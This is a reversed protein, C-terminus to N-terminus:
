ARRRRLILGGLTLLALTTPEPVVEGRFGLNIENSNFETDPSMPVRFSLTTGTLIINSIDDPSSIAVISDSDPQYNSLTTLSPYDIWGDLGSVTFDVYTATTHHVGARISAHSNPVYLSGFGTELQSSFTRWSVYGDQPDNPWFAEGDSGTFDGGNFTQGVGWNHIPFVLQPQEGEFQFTVTYDDGYLVPFGYVLNGCSFILIVTLWFVLKSM